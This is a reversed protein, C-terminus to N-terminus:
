VARSQSGDTTVDNNKREKLRITLDAVMRDYLDILRAAEKLADEISVDTDKINYKRDLFAANIAPDSKALYNFYCIKRAVGLRESYESYKDHDHRYEVAAINRWADRRAHGTMYVKGSKKPKNNGDILDAVSVDGYLFEVHLKWKDVVFAVQEFEEKNYAVTEEFVDLLNNYSQDNMTADNTTVDNKFM